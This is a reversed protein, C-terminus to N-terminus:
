ISSRGEEICERLSLRVRSLMQRTATITRGLSEAIEEFGLAKEYRMILARSATESLKEKCKRLLQRLIEEHHEAEEHNEMRQELWQHYHRLNKNERTSRRMENRVLNRAITRLWSGFDRGKQYTHLKQFANVFTQQVLDDTAEVDRMSWAVVQWVNKQYSHVIESFAEIEGSLVKEIIIEVPKETDKTM